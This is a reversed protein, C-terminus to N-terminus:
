AVTYTCAWYYTWEVWQMSRAHRGLLARLEAADPFNKLVEHVSGDELRRSQYSNGHEDHRTVASSSGDVHRNDILVVHAGPQLREHLVQLWAAALQRPIHSWWFGAFAADFPAGAVDLRYADACEFRVRSHPLPKSRALSLVEENVDTALWSECDRAAAPTWYGTGCAVELVRRGAFQAPLWDHLAAIDAQREPKDYVREYEQARLAYYRRMSEPTAKQLNM